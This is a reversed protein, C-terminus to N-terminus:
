RGIISVIGIIFLVALFWMLMKIFGEPDKGFPRNAEIFKQRNYWSLKRYIEKWGKNVKV